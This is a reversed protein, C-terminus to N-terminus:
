FDSAEANVSLVINLNGNRARLADLFEKEKAVSKISIAFVLEFLTGLDTTKVKRLEYSTTYTDLIDDFAGYYNLDEPIVIKLIRNTPEKRAGFNIKHLIVLFLCLLVTFVIAYGYQRVGCALGAAMTFFVYTIDKPDGPTSRFRIISFAGALSFATAVNSGVLLIIISIIAPLMILTLLFNQQYNGKTHTKMYIFSIFIGISFTVILTIIVDKVPLASGATFNFLEGPM